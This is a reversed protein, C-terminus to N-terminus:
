SLLQKVRTSSAAKVASTILLKLASVRSLNRSWEPGNEKKTRVEQGGRCSSVLDKIDEDVAAGGGALFLSSYQVVVRLTRGM